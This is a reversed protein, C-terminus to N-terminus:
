GHVVKAAIFPSWCTSRFSSSVSFSILSSRFARKFHHLLLHKIADWLHLANSIYRMPILVIGQGEITEDGERSEESLGLKLADALPQIKASAAWAMAGSKRM